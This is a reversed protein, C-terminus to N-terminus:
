AMGGTQTEQLTQRAMSVAFMGDSEIVKTYSGFVTRDACPWFGPEADLAWGQYECVERWMPRSIWTIVDRRDGGVPMATVVQEMLSLMLERPQWTGASYFYGEKM